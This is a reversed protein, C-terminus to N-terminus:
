LIVQTGLEVVRNPPLRFYGAVTDSQRTMWAFLHARWRPLRGPGDVVSAHAVFFTTTMLELEIGSLEELAHWVDPEERFGFHLAVGYMGPGLPEVRARRDPAVRPVEETRVHLFINREHLVKYHKLNHFLASPVLKPDSTLYVATGAVRPVGEPPHRLFDGMPIDLESRQAAVYRSGEKWTSLLVFIFLGLALPVWGGSELKTLNAALFLLEALGFVILAVRLPARRRGPLALTVAFTLLTTIVMTGSVAIGYAAALANASRFQLVLLVVAVLM